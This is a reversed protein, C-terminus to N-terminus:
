EVIESGDPAPIVVYVNSGDRSTMEFFVTDLVADRSETAQSKGDIWRILIPRNQRSRPAVHAYGSRVAIGVAGSAVALLAVVVVAAEFISDFTLAAVAGLVILVVGSAVATGGHHGSGWDRLLMKVGSIIMVSGIIWGIPEMWREPEVLLMLGIITLGLLLSAARLRDDTRPLARIAAWISGLVLAGGICRGLVPSVHDLSLVALLVVAIAVVVLAIWGALRYRSVRELM